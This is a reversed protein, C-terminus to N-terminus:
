RTFYPVAIAAVIGIGAVVPMLWALFLVGASNPPTPAGFRNPGQTGPIFLFILNALPVLVLLSLWGSMDFDHCRQITLMFGHVLMVAYPLLALVPHAQALLMAALGCLFYLATGYALYRARGIRGSVAFIRVPETSAFPDAVAAAPAQYPNLVSSM